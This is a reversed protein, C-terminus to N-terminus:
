GNAQEQIVKTGALLYPAFWNFPKDSEIEDIRLRIALRDGSRLRM